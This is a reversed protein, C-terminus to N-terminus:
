RRRAVWIWRATAGVLLAGGVAVGIIGVTREREATAGGGFQDYRAAANASQVGAEGVGWLAAGTGAFVLGIAGLADGAPDRYWARPPPRPAPTVVVAVAPPAAATPAPQPAAALERECREVNQSAGLAANEHPTTRLFAKYAAIAARCDGNMRLAQGLAYLFEPRAELEYGARFSAIADAYKGVAYSRLGRDLLEQASPAALAPAAAALALSVIVARARM